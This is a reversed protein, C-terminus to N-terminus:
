VDVWAALAESQETTLALVNTRYADRLRARLLSGAATRSNEAVARALVASDEFARLFEAIPWQRRGHVEIVARRLVQDRAPEARRGLKRLMRGSKPIASVLTQWDDDSLRGSAAADHVSQFVEAVLASASPREHCFGVALAFASISLGEASAPDIARAILSWRRMGLSSVRRDRADRGEIILKVLAPAFNKTNALWIFTPRPRSQLTVSWAPSIQTARRRTAEEALAELAIGITSEGAAEVLASLSVTQGARVVAHIVEEVLEGDRDSAMLWELGRERLVDSRWFGTEKLISPRLDLMRLAVRETVIELLAILSVSGLRRACLRLLLEVSHVTPSSSIQAAFDVVDSESAVLSEEFARTFEQEWQSFASLGDLEALVRLREGYSLTGDVESSWEIMAWSKLDTASSPQPYWRGIMELINKWTSPDSRHQAISLSLRALHGVSSRESPLQPGFRWGLTVLNRMVAPDSLVAAPGAAHRRKPFQGTIYAGSSVTREVSGFRDSPVVQIDLARGGVHRLALSGSCFSFRARLQPWQMSWILLVLTEYQDASLAPILVPLDSDGQVYLADLVNATMDRTDAAGFDSPVQGRLESEDIEIPSGYDYRAGGRPRRFYKVLDAVGELALQEATLLLTHTWVSGPREAETALWTRALAYNDSDPVPYGTIYTEFGGATVSGSLDSLALLVRNASRSLRQSSALLEHGDRYGHLAQAIRV